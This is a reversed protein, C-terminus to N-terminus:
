GAPRHNSDAGPLWDLVATLVADDTKVATGNELTTLLAQSSVTISVRPMEVTIKNIFLKLYRKTLARDGNFFLNKITKQFNEIAEDKFLHLPIVRPMKMEALRQELQTLRDKLERIQEAVNQLTIIGIEIAEYQKTLKGKTLEIQRIVSKRQGDRMKDENRMERVREKTFLKNAMHDLVARELEQAPIRQGGCASKGRRLFTGCNYYVFKGGKASELAM